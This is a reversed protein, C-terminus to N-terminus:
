DVDIDDIGPGLSSTDCMLTRAHLTNGWLNKEQHSGAAYFDSMRLRASRIERAQSHPTPTLTLVSAWGLRTSM